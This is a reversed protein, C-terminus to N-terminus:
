KKDINQMSTYWRKEIQDVNIDLKRMTEIIDSRAKRISEFNCIVEIEIFDGIQEISNLEIQINDLHYISRIKKRSWIEKLCLRNAFKRFAEVNSIDFEVENCVNFEIGDKTSEVKTAIEEKYCVTYKTNNKRLRIRQNSSPDNISKHVFYTDTCKEECIFKAISKLKMHMSSIDKVRAKIELEISM